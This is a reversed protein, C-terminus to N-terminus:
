IINNEIDSKIIELIEDTLEKGELTKFDNAVDSSFHYKGQKGTLENSVMLAHDLGDATATFNVRYVNGLVTVTATRYINYSIIQTM